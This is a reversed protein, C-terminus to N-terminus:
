KTQKIQALFAQSCNLTSFIQPSQFIIKFIIPPNSISLKHSLFLQFGDHGNQSFNFLKLTVKYGEINWISPRLKTPQSRSIQRSKQIFSFELAEKRNELFSCRPFHTKISVNYIKINYGSHILSRQIDHMNRFYKKMQMYKYICPKHLM